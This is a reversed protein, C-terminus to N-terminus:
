DDERKTNCKCMRKINELQGNMESSQLITKAIDADCKFFNMVDHVSERNEKSFHDKTSM